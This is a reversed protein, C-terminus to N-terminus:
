TKSKGTTVAQAKYFKGAIIKPPEHEASGKEDINYICHPKDM